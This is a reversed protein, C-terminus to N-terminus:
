IDTRMQRSDVNGNKWQSFRQGAQITNQSPKGLQAGNSFQTGEKGQVNDEWSEHNFDNGLNTNQFNGNKDYGRYMNQYKAWIDAAVSQKGQQM